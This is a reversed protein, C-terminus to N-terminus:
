IKEYDVDELFKKPASVRKKVTSVKVMEGRRNIRSKEVIKVGTLYNSSERVSTGKGRDMEEYDEGIMVFRKLPMDYRFRQTHDTAENSGWLHNVVIVGNAIKVDPSGGDPGALVGFCSTCFLLRVAAAIRRWAGNNTKALVLLARYRDDGAPLDEILQLLLDPKADRNLDGEIQEEIKWGRPVFDTASKGEGPIQSLKIYRREDQAISFTAFAFLLLSLAIIATLKKM